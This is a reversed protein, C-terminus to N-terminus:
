RPLSQFQSTSCYAIENKIGAIILNTFFLSGNQAGFNVCSYYPMDNQVYELM